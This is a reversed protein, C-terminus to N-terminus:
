TNDRRKIANPANQHPNCKPRVLGIWRMPTLYISKLRNPKRQNRLHDDSM